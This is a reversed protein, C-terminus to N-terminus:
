QTNFIGTFSGQAALLQRESGDQAGPHAPLLHQHGLHAGMCHPTSPSPVSYNTTGFPPIRMSGPLRKRSMYNVEDTPSRSVVAAFDAVGANSGQTSSYNTCQMSGSWRM